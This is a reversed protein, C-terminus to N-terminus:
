QVNLLDEQKDTIGYQEYLHKQPAFEGFYKQEAELRAKIADDKNFFYKYLLRQGNQVLQSVWKHKIKDWSVGIIGSKNDSSINHNAQQQSRSAIRFNCRRNNMPNRDKHDIYNEGTLFQAMSKAKGNITSVLKNYGSDDTKTFWSHTRLLQFDNLDFQFELGSNTAWGIGYEYSTIDYDNLRLCGCSLTHGSRIKDGRINTENGCKCQCLWISNGSKDHKALKVVTLRSNPVGHEWMKWGTMDIFNGM